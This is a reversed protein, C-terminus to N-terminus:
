GRPIRLVQGPYIYRGPNAINRSDREILMEKNEDWLRTWKSSDGYVEPKAAITWLSDGNKVTYYELKIDDDTKQSTPRQPAQTDRSSDLYELHDPAAGLPMGRTLELTTEWSEFVHFSQTVGEIYFEREIGKRVLRHGIRYDGKGRVRMTGSMYTHNKEFWAKLKATWSKSLGELLTPAEPNDQEISLGEISVELPSLGYRKADEENFMPPVVRKLDFGLPNIVTGAWFLNYHENDSISLEEEIVDEALLDHTYLKEWMGKDFPTNRLVVMVASNDQGFGVRPSPYYGDGKPYKAKSDDSGEEITENVVRPRDGKNWAEDASRVDVFLETFPKISAREMLNWISGEYQDATFIMPLFIDVKGFNYRLINTVDVKKPVPEKKSEDWITWEVANLKPLIYRMINDLVVAPTGKVITEATFVNMLTIWGEDTLFFKEGDRNDMGVEPYFRLQSKILVKALDRGTVTTTAVPPTQATRTRGITDILGVMVTQVDEKGDPKKYGMQIVVLDNPTLRSMWAIGALQISFTGAPASMQKHTTVSIVQYTPDLQKGEETIEGKLQYYKDKTHFSVYVVPIYRKVTRSNNGGKEKYGISM